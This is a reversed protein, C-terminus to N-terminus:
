HDIWHMHMTIWWYNNMCARAIYRLCLIMIVEILVINCEETGQDVARGIPM